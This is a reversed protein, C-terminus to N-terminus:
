RGRIADRLAARAAVIADHHEIPYDDDSMPKCGNARYRRDSEEQFAADADKYARNTEVVKSVYDKVRGM